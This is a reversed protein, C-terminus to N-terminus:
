FGVSWSEYYGLDSLLKRGVRPYHLKKIANDHIQRVRQGTVGLVAGISNYTDSEVTMHSFEYYLLIVKKEREKLHCLANMVANHRDTDIEYKDNPDSWSLTDIEDSYELFQVGIRDIYKKSKSNKNKDFYSMFLKKGTLTFSKRDDGKQLGLFRCAHCRKELNCGREMKFPADCVNCIKKHKCEM